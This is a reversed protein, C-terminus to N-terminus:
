ISKFRSVKHLDLEGQLLVFAVFTVFSLILGTSHNATYNFSRLLYAILVRHMEKSFFFTRM